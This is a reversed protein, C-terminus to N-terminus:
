LSGDDGRPARGGAWRVIGAVRAPRLDGGAPTRSVGGGEDDAASRRYSLGGGCTPLRVVGARATRGQGRQTVLGDRGADGHADHGCAHMVGDVKSAFGHDNEEQIPLANMDARLAVSTGPRGEQIVGLVGTEAYGATFLIDNQHLKVQVTKSTAHEEGSLEPYRHLHRRLSVIEELYSDGKGTLVPKM